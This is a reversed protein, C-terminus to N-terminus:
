AAEGQSAETAVRLEVEEAFALFAKTAAGRPKHILVPKRLMTAEPVEAAVPLTATFVQDGYQQRLIDLYVGHLSRRAQYMTVVLGLIRLDPNVTARVAEVARWVLPLGQAGYDEPVVPVLVRGAAALAAWSCLGLAPPCDLLAYDYRDALEGLLDALCTQQEWSAEHPRGTEYPGAHESGPLLDLGFM